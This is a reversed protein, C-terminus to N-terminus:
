HHQRHLAQFLAVLNDVDVIHRVKQHEAREDWFQAARLDNKVQVIGHRFQHHGNKTQLFFADDDPNQFKQFFGADAKGVLHQRHVQGALFDKGGATAGRFFDLHQEVHGVLANEFIASAIIVRLPVFGTGKDDHIVAGDDLAVAQVQRDLRQPKAPFINRVCLQVDVSGARVKEVGHHVEDPLVAQVANDPMQALLHLAFYGLGDLVAVDANNGVAQVGESFDVRRRADKFIERQALRDDGRLRASDGIIKARLIQNEKFQAVGGIKGFFDFEGAGPGAIDQFDGPAALGNIARM